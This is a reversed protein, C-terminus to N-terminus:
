VCTKGTGTQGYAFITCNYGAIVEALIPAVVDQYILAQDAEPGFVVDFPYTRTPPLTVIGLISSQAALEITVERSRAGESTVIIPSSEQIEKESRRRTRIVVQINGDADAGSRTPVPPVPLTPSVVSDHSATSASSKALASKPRTPYHSQSSPPRQKSAPPAPAAARRSAM